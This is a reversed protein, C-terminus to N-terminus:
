KNTPSSLFIPHYIQGALTRSLIIFTYFKEVKDESAEGRNIKPLLITTQSYFPLHYFSPTHAAAVRLALASSSHSPLFPALAQENSHTRFTGRFSSAQRGQRMAIWTFSRPSSCAERGVRNKNTQEEYTPKGTVRCRVNKHLKLSGRM